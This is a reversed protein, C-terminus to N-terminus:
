YNLLNEIEPSLKKVLARITPETIGAAEAIDKQRIHVGETLAAIYIAAGACGIPKRNEILGKKATERAIKLATIEIKKNLGLVSCIRPIYQDPSIFSQKIKLGRQIAKCARYIERKKVGAVKEIEDLTRPISFQRCVIYILASTVGEIKRGQTLNRNRAKQYLACTAEKIDEPLKLECTMRDIESLAAALSREGKLFPTTTQKRPRSLIKEPTFSTTLGKTHSRWTEPAGTRARKEWSNFDFSRWERGPDISTEDIVLGCNTCYSEGTELDQVIQGGCEPCKNREEM